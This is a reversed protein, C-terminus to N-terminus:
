YGTLAPTVFVNTGTIKLDPTLFASTQMSAENHVWLSESIWLKYMFNCLQM